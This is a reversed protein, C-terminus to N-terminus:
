EKAAEFAALAQKRAQNHDVIPSPYNSKLGNKKLWHHPNHIHEDPVEKLEPLWKRLFVGRSDFREGQATPNFIRFYPAADTGTSASWQWGGNNAALDGDLLQSTFYREGFRWHILLDKTLFSATIMRLRNHMWGTANLQRMAADVIPYGTMGKQWASLHKEKDSWQIKDTWKVFPKEMCLFPYAVILHRYFERWILENLWSFAGSKPNELVGPFEALLRNYCQRPSIVGIALYPSLKSTGDSAPLDRQDSYNKVKENCFRRLKQLAFKEGSPFDAHAETFPYDFPPITKEIKIAGGNRAKPPTLSRVDSAKLKLLFEKRFPTYVKYMELNGNLVTGPPLLVSDHYGQCTVKDGLSRKLHEDRRYENIEYQYNFFIEKVQEKICFDKLWEVSAKFDDCQRYILPIGIEALAQQLHLLNEYIFRAQRPSMHHKHWQKPTAIFIAKIMVQNDSCAKYLAKNDTVRLDNRFWVLRTTM